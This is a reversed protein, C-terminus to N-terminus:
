YSKLKASATCKVHSVKTLYPHRLLRLIKEERAFDDKLQNVASLTVKKVLRHKGGFIYGNVTRKFM